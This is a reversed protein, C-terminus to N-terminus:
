KNEKVPLLTVPTDDRLVKRKKTVPRDELLDVEEDEPLLPISFNKYVLRRVVDLPVIGADYFKILGMLADDSKVIHHDFQVGVEIDDFNLGAGLMPFIQRDLKRFTHYYVEKLIDNFLEHQSSVEKDLLKQYMDNHSTNGSGLTSSSARNTKSDATNSGAGHPKFFVFPLRMVTCVDNEYKREREAVNVVPQGPKTGSIEIPAPLTRMAEYASPRNNALKYDWILSSPAQMEILGCGKRGSAATTITRKMATRQLHCRADDLAIGQRDYNDRQRAQLINNVSFLTEDSIDELPADKSPRVYAINEPYVHMSNADFLATEGEIVLRKQRRLENFPSIPEYDTGYQMTFLNSGTGGSCFSTAQFRAGRDIVNFQYRSALEDDNCEFLISTQMTSRNEVVMYHGYCDAENMGLPIVGFPFFAMMNERLQRDMDIEINEDDSTEDYEDIQIIDGNENMNEKERYSEPRRRSSVEVMWADIDKVHYYGLFGFRSIFDYAKTYFRRLAEKFFPKNFLPLKYFPAGEKDFWAVFWDHRFVEHELKMRCTEIDKDTECFRNLEILARTNVRHVVFSSNNNM